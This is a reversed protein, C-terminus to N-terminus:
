DAKMGEPRLQGLMLKQQASDPETFRMIVKRAEEFGEERAQISLEILADRIQNYTKQPGNWLQYSLEDIEIRKTM